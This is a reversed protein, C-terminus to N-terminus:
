RQFTWDYFIGGNELAVAVFKSRLQSLNEPTLRTEMVCHEPYPGISGREEESRWVCGMSRLADWGPHNGPGGFHFGFELATLATPNEDSSIRSKLRARDLRDHFEEIEPMSEGYELVFDAPVGKISHDRVFFREWKSHYSSVRKGDVVFDLFFDATDTSTRQSVRYFSRGDESFDLEARWAEGDPTMKTETCFYFEGNEMYREERILYHGPFGAPIEWRCIYGAPYPGFYSHDIFGRDCGAFQARQDPTKDIRNPPKWASNAKEVACAATSLSLVLAVLVLLRV